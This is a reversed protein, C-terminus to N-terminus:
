CSNLPRYKVTKMFSYIRKVSNLFLQDCIKKLILWYFVQIQFRKKIFNWVRLRLKILFLSLFMYKEAFIWFNKLVVKKYSYRLINILNSRGTKNKSATEQVLFTSCSNLFNFMFSLIPFTLNTLFFVNLNYFSVWKIQLIGRRFLNPILKMASQPVIHRFNTM